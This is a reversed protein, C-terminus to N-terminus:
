HEGSQKTDGSDMHLTLTVHVEISELGSKISYKEIVNKPYGLNKYKLNGFQFFVFVKKGFM